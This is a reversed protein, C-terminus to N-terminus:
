RENFNKQQYKPMSNKGFRELYQEFYPYVNKFWLSPHEKAFFHEVLLKDLIEDVSYKKELYTHYRFGFEETLNPYSLLNEKDNSQEQRKYM